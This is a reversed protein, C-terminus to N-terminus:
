IFEKDILKKKVDEESKRPLEGPTSPLEMGFDRVLNNEIFGIINVKKPYNISM